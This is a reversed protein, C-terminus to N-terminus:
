RRRVGTTSTQLITELTLRGYKESMTLEALTGAAYRDMETVTALRGDRIDDSEIGHYLLAGVSSKWRPAKRRRTLCITMLLFASGGVELSLPLVLWPWRVEVYTVIAGM